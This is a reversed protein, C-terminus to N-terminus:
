NRKAVLDTAFIKAGEDEFVHFFYRAKKDDDAYPIKEHINFDEAM